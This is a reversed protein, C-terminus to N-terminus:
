WNDQSSVSVGYIIPDESNGAPNPRYHIVLDSINGNRLEFLTRVILDTNAVGVVMFNKGPIVGGSSDPINKTFTFGIKENVISFTLIEASNINITAM